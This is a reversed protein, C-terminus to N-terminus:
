RMAEIHYARSGALRILDADHTAIIIPINLEALKAIISNKLASDLGRTPEDLVLQKPKRGLTVALALCLKQGESLDRPHTHPSIEPALASLIERSRIGESLGCEDGVSQTLLIDAPNQPIYGYVDFSDAVLANLYTTKGSGNPGHIVVLDAIEVPKIRVHTDDSLLIERTIYPALHHTRHECVLVAHERAYTGLYAAIESASKDDLASTPEDLILYPPALAVASAIAVKQAEGASLTHLAQKRRQTLGFEECLTDIRAAIDDTSWGHSELAFAIEDEVTDSVFSHLPNQAVYGVLHSLQAPKTTAVDLGDVMVSGSVLGGLHHPILGNIVKTLTSKGSGTAGTVLVFAGRDLTFSITRLAPQPDGFHVALNDITIM